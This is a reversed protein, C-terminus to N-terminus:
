IARDDSDSHEFNLIIFNYHETENSKHVNTNKTEKEKKRQVYEFESKTANAWVCKKILLRFTHWDLNIKVVLVTGRKPACNEAGIM